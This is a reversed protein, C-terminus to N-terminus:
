QRGNTKELRARAYSAHKTRPHDRIITRYLEAAMPEDKLEEQQVEALRFLAAARQKDSKSLRVVNRLSVVAEQPRGLKLLVEALRRRAEMDGADSEIEERYLRVAEDLEGRVEAGAARDYTKVVPMQSIGSVARALVELYYQAVCYLALANFALAILWGACIFLLGFVAGPGLSLGAAATSWYAFSLVGFIILYATQVLGSRNLDEWKKFILSAAAGYLCLVLLAHHKFLGIIAMMPCVGAGSARKGHTNLLADIVAARESLSHSPHLPDSRNLPHISAQLQPYFRNKVNQLSAM